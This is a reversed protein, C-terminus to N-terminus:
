PRPSRALCNALCSALEVATLPKAVLDAIGEARLFDHTHSGSFGSMVIVPVDPALRHIEKALEIGTMGPLGLDTLVIDFGCPDGACLSLADSANAAVSVRYGLSRLLAAVARRLPEEDDVLLVSQGHGEPVDAPAASARGLDLAQEPLYLTVRTGRGLESEVVIAGEHERMIGHVVSLGLGTGEGKPKTTFFPDFIRGLTEPAIGEGSDRVSILVAGPLADFASRVEELSEFEPPANPSPV